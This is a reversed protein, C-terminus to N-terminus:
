NVIFNLYLVDFCKIEALIMIVGVLAIHAHVMSVQLTQQSLGSNNKIKKYNTRVIYCVIEKGYNHGM